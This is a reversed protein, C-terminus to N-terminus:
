QIFIGPVVQQAEDFLAADDRDDARLQELDRGVVPRAQEVVPERFFQGHAEVDVDALQRPGVREVVDHAPEESGAAPAFFRVHAQAPQELVRREFRWLRQAPQRRDGFEVEEDRRGAVRQELRRDVELAEAARGRGLRQRVRGVADDVQRGLAVAQLPRDHIVQEPADRRRRGVHDRVLVQELEDARQLALVQRGLLQEVLELVVVQQEDAAIEGVPQRAQEQAHGLALPQGVRAVDALDHGVVVGALVLPQDGEQLLHAHARADVLAGLAEHSSSCSRSAARRLGAVAAAGRAGGCVSERRRGAVHGVVGHEDAIRALVQGGHLLDLGPELGGADRGPEVHVPELDAVVVVALDLAVDRAAGIEDRDDRGVRLAAELAVEPALPAVRMSRTRLM